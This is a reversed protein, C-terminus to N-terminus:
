GALSDNADLYILEDDGAPPADEIAQADAGLNFPADLRAVEADIRAIQSALRKRMRLALRITDACGPLSDKCVVLRRLADDLAIKAAVLRYQLDVLRNLRETLLM